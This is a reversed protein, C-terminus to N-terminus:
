TADFAAPVVLLLTIMYGVVSWPCLVHCLAAVDVKIIAAGAVQWTEGFTRFFGKQTRTELGPPAVLTVGGRRLTETMATEGAPDPPQNSNPGYLHTEPVVIWITPAVYGEPFEPLPPESPAQKAPV